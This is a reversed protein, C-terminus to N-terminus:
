GTSSTTRRSTPVERTCGSSRSFRAQSPLLSFRSTSGASGRGSCSAAIIEGALRACLGTALVLALAENPRLIPIVSGRDIGVILPTAAILVFAALPPHLTVAGALALGGVGVVALTPSRAALPGVAVAAALAALATWVAPDRLPGFSRAQRSVSAYM